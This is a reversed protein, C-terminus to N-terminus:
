FSSCVQEGGNKNTAAGGKGKKGHVLRRICQIFQTIEKM